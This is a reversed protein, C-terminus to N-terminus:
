RQDAPDYGFEGHWSGNAWDIRCWKPVYPRPDPLPTSDHRLPKGEGVDCTSAVTARFALHLMPSVAVAAADPEAEHFHFRKAVMCSFLLEMEAILPAARETAAREASPTLVLRVPRDFLQVTHDM